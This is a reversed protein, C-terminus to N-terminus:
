DVFLLPVFDDDPVIVLFLIPRLDSEVCVLENHIDLKSFVHHDDNEVFLGKNEIKNGKLKDLLDVCEEIWCTKAGEGLSFFWNRFYNAKRM